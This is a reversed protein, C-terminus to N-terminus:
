SVTSAREAEDEEWFELTYSAGPTYYRLVTDNV